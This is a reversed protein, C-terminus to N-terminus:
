LICEFQTEKVIILRATSIENHIQSWNLNFYNYLQKLSYNRLQFYIVKPTIESVLFRNFFDVDKTLIVLDKEIAYNWIETDTMQLNIDAVFYFNDENFFSFYKPLNVDVLFSYNM